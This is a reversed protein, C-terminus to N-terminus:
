DKAPAITKALALFSDRQEVSMQSYARFLASLQPDDERVGYLIWMPNVKLEDCLAIFGDLSPEKNETLISRLYNPRRNAASSIARWSRGSKEAADRLREKWGDIVMILMISTLIQATM